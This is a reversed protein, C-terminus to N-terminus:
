VRGFEDEIRIIDDEGLYSGTQVEILELEVDQGADVKKGIETQGTGFEDTWAEITYEYRANKALTFEGTWRDNEYLRM